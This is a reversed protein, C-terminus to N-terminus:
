VIRINSVFFKSKTVCDRGPRQRTFGALAKSANEAVILNPYQIKVESITLGALVGSLMHKSYVVTKM